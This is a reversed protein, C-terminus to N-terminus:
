ANELVGLISDEHTAIFVEGDIKFEQYLNKSFVVIDGVKIQMPLRCKTEDHGELADIASQWHVLSIGRPGEGGNPMAKFADVLEQLADVVDRGAPSVKALKGPGTAVVEGRWPTENSEEVPPLEFGWSTKPAENTLKRILVLDQTLKINM